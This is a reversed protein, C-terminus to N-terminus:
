GFIYLMLMLSKNFELHLFFPLSSYLLSFGFTAFFLFLFLLINGLFFTVFPLICRIQFGCVFFIFAKFFLLLSRFCWCGFFWSLV